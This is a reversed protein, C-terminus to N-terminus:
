IGSHNNTLLNTCRTIKITMYASTAATNANETKRSGFKFNRKNTYNKYEPEKQNKTGFINFDVVQHYGISPTIFGTRSKFYKWRTSRAKPLYIGVNRLITNSETMMNLTWRSYSPVVIQRLAQSQLVDSVVYFGPPHLVLTNWESFLPRTVM